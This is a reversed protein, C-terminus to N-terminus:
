ENWVGNEKSGAAKKLEQLLEDIIPHNVTYHVWYGRKEGSVLGCERLIKLHQSIASESLTLIRAIAKGCLPRKAILTVIAFRTDDGLAKFMAPLSKSIDNPSDLKTNM